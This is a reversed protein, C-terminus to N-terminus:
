KENQKKYSSCITCLGLLLPLVIYLVIIYLVNFISCSKYILFSMIVQILLAALGTKKKWNILYLMRVQRVIKMDVPLYKLKEYISRQKGEERMTIYSIMYVHEAMSIMAILPLLMTEEGAVIEQLPIFALFLAIGEMFYAAFRAGIDSGSSYSLLDQDFMRVREREAERAARSKEQNTEQM